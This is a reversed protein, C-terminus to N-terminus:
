LIGIPSHPLGSSTKISSLLDCGVQLQVLLIKLRPDEVHAEKNEEAYFLYQIHHQLDQTIEELSSEEDLITSSTSADHPIFVEAGSDGGIDLDVAQKDMLANLAEYIQDDNLNQFGPLNNSLNIQMVDEAGVEIAHDTAIELSLNAPKIAEVVGKFDFEHRLAGGNSFTAPGMHFFELDAGTRPIDPGSTSWNQGSIIQGRPSYSTRLSSQALRTSSSQRPCPSRPEFRADPSSPHNKRFPKESERWAFAHESGIDEVKGIRLGNAYNTSLRTVWVPLLVRHKQDDQVGILTEPPLGSLLLAGHMRAVVRVVLKM